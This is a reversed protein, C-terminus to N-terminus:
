PNRRRCSPARDISKFLGSRDLDDTIVKAIEPGVDKASGTKSVETAPGFFDPIAIPLPKVNAQTIDVQLAAKAGSGLGALVVCGLLLCLASRIGRGVLAGRAQGQIKSRM